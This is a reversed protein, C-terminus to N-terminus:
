EEANGRGAGRIAHGGLRLIWKGRSRKSRSLKELPSSRTNQSITGDGPVSLPSSPPSAPAETIPAATISKSPETVAHTTTPTDAVLKDLFHQQQPEFRLTIPPPSPQALTFTGDVRPTSFDTSAIYVAGMLRDTLQLLSEYQYKPLFFDKLILTGFPGSAIALANLYAASWVLQIIAGTFVM